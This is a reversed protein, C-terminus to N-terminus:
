ELHRLDRFRLSSNSCFRSLTKSRHKSTPQGKTHGPGGSNVGTCQTAVAHESADLSQRDRKRLKEAERIRSVLGDHNAEM